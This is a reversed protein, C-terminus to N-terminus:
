SAPTAGTDMGPTFNSFPEGIRTLAAVLLVVEDNGANRSDDRSDEIFLWDGPALVVEEGVPMTESPTVTGDVAARTLEATGGLATYGFSGAEVYIVLAGPHTHDPLRGGPAIMTRRLTLEMGPASATPGGGLMAMTVGVAGTPAAPTADQATVSTRWTALLAALSLGGIGGLAARRTVATAPNAKPREEHAANM